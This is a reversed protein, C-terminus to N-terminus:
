EKVKEIGERNYIVEFDGGKGKVTYARITDNEKVGYGHGFAGAIFRSPQKTVHFWAVKVTDGKKVNEGRDVSKVEVEATYDTRVGDGGFPSEKTSVKKVTGVVVDTAVKKDQPPREALLATSLGLLALCSLLPRM